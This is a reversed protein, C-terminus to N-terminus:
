VARGVNCRPLLGSSPGGAEGSRLRREGIAGIPATRSETLSVLSV